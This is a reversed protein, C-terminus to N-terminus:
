SQWILLFFLVCWWEPLHELVFRCNRKGRKANQNKLLSIRLSLKWRFLVCVVMNSDVHGPKLTTFTKHLANM